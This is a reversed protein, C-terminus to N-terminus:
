VEIYETHTRGAAGAFGAQARYRQCMHVRSACLARRLGALTALAFACPGSVAWTMAASWPVANLAGGPVGGLPPPVTEVDVRRGRAPVLLIHM